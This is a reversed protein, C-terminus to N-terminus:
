RKRAEAFSSVCSPFLFAAMEPELSDPNLSLIDLLAPGGTGHLRISGDANQSITMSETRVFTPLPPLPVVPSSISTPLRSHSLDTCATLFLVILYTFLRAPM